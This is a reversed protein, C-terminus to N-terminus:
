RPAELDLEVDGFATHERRRQSTYAEGTGASVLEYLVAVKGARPRLIRGLRQVHERVSGTGSVVIGVTAEPVDVGENLVRSTVLVPLAGARFDDLLRKREAGKTHHTLVPLLMTRGIAYATANDDTFVICREGAHDRLLDWAVRLKARSARSIRKQERYAHLVARGDPDRAAESIFRQWGDPRSFDLGRGRVFGLYRERHARYATAEDADLPVELVEAQYNALFEGELETIAVRHVIPGLLDDLAAHGGDTREPTATLGLRYPAICGTAVAATAPAPLHHCEDCILLGFRHGHHPVILIGSDYTAVTIAQLDRDGGGYRGIPLALRRELDSAWQQVLDITPVLVLTSRAAACLARVAVYTKGAGTPLVVVGRRKAAEWAALADRQYVRLALPAREHVALEQYARARDHYRFRGHLRRLIAAYDHASARHARIREDLRVLEGLAAGAEADLDDLVLTGQDFRITVVRAM